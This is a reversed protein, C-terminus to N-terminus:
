LPLGDHPRPTPPATVGAQVLAAQQAMAVTDTGPPASTIADMSCVLDIMCTVCNDCMARDSPVCSFPHHKDPDLYCLLVEQCCGTMMIYERLTSHNLSNSGQLLGLAWAQTVLLISLTTGCTGRTARSAQQVLNIVKYVGSLHIVMRIYPIDIGSGFATMTVVVQTMGWCFAQLMGAKDKEPMDTCYALTSHSTHTLLTIIHSTAAKTMTFVLVKAATDGTLQSMVLQLLWTDHDCVPETLVVHSLECHLSPTHMVHLHDHILWMCSILLAEWHTPLLSSLFIYQACTGAFTDYM